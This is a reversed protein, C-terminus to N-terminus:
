DLLDRPLYREALYHGYFELGFEDVWPFITRYSIPPKRIKSESQGHVRKAMWMRAQLGDQVVKRIGARWECKPWYGPRDYYWAIPKVSIPQRIGCKHVRDAIYQEVARGWVESPMFLEPIEREFKVPYPIMRHLLEVYVSAEKQIVADLFPSCVIERHYTHEKTM